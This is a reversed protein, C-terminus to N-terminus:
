YKAIRKRMTKSKLLKEEDNPVFVLSRSIGTRWELTGRASCQLSFPCSTEVCVGQTAELRVTGVFTIRARGDYPIKKFLVSCKILEAM